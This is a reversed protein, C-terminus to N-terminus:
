ECTVTAQDMGPPREQTFTGDPLPPSWKVDDYQVLVDEGTSPVQLKFRRPVEARCEPGSPLVPADIGLDDVRAAETEAPAHGRLEAHYIVHGDQRVAVDILRMRQSQWPLEFDSPHPELHLEEEANRAGKLTVVYHGKASWLVQSADHRVIPAQGRLLSVLAHPPIPVRILRAINCATAPGVYFHKERLDSL